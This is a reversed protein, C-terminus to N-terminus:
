AVEPLAAPTKYLSWPTQYDLHQHKREHNYYSMWEAVHSKLEGVTGYSYLQIREYKLSRWLREIVVNDMWRGKGDMSIRIGNRELEGIWKLWTCHARDQTKTRRSIAM